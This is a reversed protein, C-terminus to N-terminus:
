QEKATTIVVGCVVVQKGTCRCDAAAEFLKIVGM